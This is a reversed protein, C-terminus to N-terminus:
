FGFINSYRLFYFLFSYGVHSQNHKTPYIILSSILPSLRRSCRDDFLLLGTHRALGLLILQSYYSEIDCLVLFPKALVRLSCRSHLAPPSSFSPVIPSLLAIVVSVIKGNVVDETVVCGLRICLIYIHLRSGLIVALFLVILQDYPLTM